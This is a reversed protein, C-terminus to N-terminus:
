VFTIKEINNCPQQMACRGLVGIVSVMMEQLALLVNRAYFLLGYHAQTTKVLMLEKQLPLQTIHMSLYFHLIDPHQIVDIWRLRTPQRKLRDKSVTNNAHVFVLNINYMNTIQMMPHNQLFSPEEAKAATNDFHNASAYERTYSLAGACSHNQRFPGSRFLYMSDPFMLYISTAGVLSPKNTSQFMRMVTEIYNPAYYDDDDMHVNYSGSALTKVLNRKCGVPVKHPLHIYTLRHLQHELPCHAFYDSMSQESDDVVVWELQHLPITQAAIMRALYPIFTHREYTPTLISIIIADATKANAPHPRTTLTIAPM